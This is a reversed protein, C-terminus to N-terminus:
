DSSIQSSTSPSVFKVVIGTSTSPGGTKGTQNAQNNAIEQGASITKIQLFM